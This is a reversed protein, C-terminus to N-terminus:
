QRFPRRRPKKILGGGTTVVAGPLLIISRKQQTVILNQRWGSAVWRTIWNSAPWEGGASVKVSCPRSDGGSLVFPSSSLCSKNCTVLDTAGTARGLAVLITSVEGRHREVTRWALGMDAGALHFMRSPVVRAPKDAPRSLATDIEDISRGRTEFGIFWFAVAGLIYWSSFYNFAPILADLTAKPAV